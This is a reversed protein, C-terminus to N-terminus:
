RGTLTMFGGYMISQKVPFYLAGFSYPLGSVSSCASTRGYVTGRRRGRFLEAGNPVEQRSGRTFLWPGVVVTLRVVKRVGNPCGYCRGSVALVPWETRLVQGCVEYTLFIASICGVSSFVTGVM